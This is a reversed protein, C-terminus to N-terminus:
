KKSFKMSVRLVILIFVSFLGLHLLWEPNIYYTILFLILLFTVFGIYKSSLTKFSLTRKNLCVSAAKTVETIFSKDRPIFDNAGLKILQVILKISDTSSYMIVPIKPYKVKVKSLLSDGNMRKKYASDLYYDAIILKPKRLEITQLCEEATTFTRVRCKIIAMIKKQLIKLSISNDDVIYVYPPKFFM